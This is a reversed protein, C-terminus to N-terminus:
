YDSINILGWFLSLNNGSFDRRCWLDETRIHITGCDEVYRYSNPNTKVLGIFNHSSEAAVGPGKYDTDHGACGSLCLAALASSLVALTLSKM